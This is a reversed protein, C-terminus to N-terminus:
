KYSFEVVRVRGSWRPSQRRGARVWRLKAAFFDARTRAPGTPDTDPGHLPIYSKRTRQRCVHRSRHDHARRADVHRCHAVLADTPGVPADRRGDVVGAVPRGHAHTRRELRGDQQGDAVVGDRVRGLIGVGVLGAAREGDGDGTLGRKTRKIIIVIIITRRNRVRRLMDIVNCPRADVM